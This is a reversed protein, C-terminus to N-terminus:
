QSGERARRLLSAIVVITPQDWGKLWDVIRRDYAGLDIGAVAEELLNEVESLTRGSYVDIPDTEIPGKPLHLSGSPKTGHSTM